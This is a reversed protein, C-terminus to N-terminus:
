PIVLHQHDVDASGPRRGKTLVQLWNGELHLALVDKPAYGLLQLAEEIVLHHVPGEHQVKVPKPATM